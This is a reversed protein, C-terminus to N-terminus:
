PTPPENPTGDAPLAGSRSFVAVPVHTPVKDEDDTNNADAALTNPPTDQPPALPRRPPTDTAIMAVTILLYLAAGVFLFWNGLDLGLYAGVALLLLAPLTGLVRYRRPRPGTTSLPDSHRPSRHAM